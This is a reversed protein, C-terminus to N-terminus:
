LEIIKIGERKLLDAFVGVGKKKKGDFNGSYITKCGCTPSGSKLIAKKIKNKKVFELALKAGLRFEQTFDKGSNDVIRGGVIECANRPIGLGAMLEPCIAVSNGKKYIALARVSTKSVGNKRCPVGVLCASIITDIKQKTM